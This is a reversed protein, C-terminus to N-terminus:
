RITRAFMTLVENSVNGEVTVLIDRSVFMLEGGLADSHILARRGGLDIERPADSEDGTAAFMVDAIGPRQTQTVLLTSAGDTMMTVSAAEPERDGPSVRHDSYGQVEVTYGAPPTVAVPRFGLISWADAPDDVPRFGLDEVVTSEVSGLDAVSFEQDSLEPDAEFSDFDVERTVLGGSVERERLPLGSSADTWVFRNPALELKTAQRGNVQETGAMRLVASDAVSQVVEGLANDTQAGLSPRMGKMVHMVASGDAEIRRTYLTSGTRISASVVEKGQDDKERLVVRYDGPQRVTVETRVVAKKGDSGTQTEVYKARWGHKTKLTRVCRTRAEDASASATRGSLVVPGVAAAMALAAAVGIGLGRKWSMGTM